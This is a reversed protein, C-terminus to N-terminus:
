SNQIAKKLYYNTNIEDELTTSEGHGPYIKISKPYNVIKKLSNNMDEVNGGELDMRGVTGKFIFDGVFMFNYEYFYFSISDKTHGPNKIVEFNINGLSYKKEELNTFDYVPVNYKKAIADKAGIHDSHSHTILIGLLTSNGILNEILYPDDGPDIVISNNEHEVIYCNTQLYGVVVKKVQM